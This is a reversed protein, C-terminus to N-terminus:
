VARRRRFHAQLTLGLGVAATTLGLAGLGLFVSEDPGPNGALARLEPDLRVFLAMYLVGVGLAWAAALVGEHGPRRTLWFGILLGAVIVYDIIWLPAYQWSGGPRSENLLAEAVAMVVATTLALYRSVTLSIM